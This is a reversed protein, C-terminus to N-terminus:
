YFLVLGIALFTAPVVATFSSAANSPPAPTTSGTPTETAGPPPSTSGSPSPGSTPPSPPSAQDVPSPAPSSTPTTAPTPVPTAAPTPTPTAISCHGGVTCIYYRPGATTLTITAPGTTTLSIPSATTCPGYAAQSVQAVNHAGTTFNFFLTDGVTFTQQAAWTTYAAAGNSPINWGLADGVVHRTQAMSTHMQMSAVIMMMMLVVMCSKLEAMKHTHKQLHSYIGPRGKRERELVRSNRERYTSTSTSPQSHPIH